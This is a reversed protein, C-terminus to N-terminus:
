SQRNVVLRNTKAVLGKLSEVLNKKEVSSKSYYDKDLMRESSIIPKDRIFVSRREDHVDRVYLM